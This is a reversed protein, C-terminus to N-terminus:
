LYEGPVELELDSTPFSCCPHIYNFEIDNFRRFENDEAVFFTGAVLKSRCWGCEGSRCRSPAKIGARELAVLITEEAKAPIEWSLDGQRVKLTFTKGAAEAPYGPMASVQKPVPMMEYRMLRRPLELAALEKKMFRMMAEPGSVFISYEEAPAYKRILEATIFGQEYGAVEESDLVYVVKFKPCAAAIANFEEEFLISAKTKCGYILTLNFDEAGDQIAHAMSLFPTVGSGGALAIVQKPDRLNEYYFNGQPDSATVADGVKLGALLKDAAFGGPNSKITVEYTGMLAKAPASSISYPRTIASGDLELKLSLYQGARFYPVPKGDPRALVFTKANAEGRDIIEKVVLKQFDPHLEKALKNISFEGTIEKAPAAQIAQERVKAMNKFKLMDLPGILGVKVNVAM